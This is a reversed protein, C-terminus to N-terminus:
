PRRLYTMRKALLEQNSNRRLNLLGPSFSLKGAGGGWIQNQHFQTPSPHLFTQASHSFTKHSNIELSQFVRNRGLYKDCFRRSKSSVPNKASGGLIMSAVCSEAQINTAFGVVKPLFRTKPLKKATMDESDGQLYDNGSGGCATDDGVNYPNLHFITSQSGLFITIYDPSRFILTIVM